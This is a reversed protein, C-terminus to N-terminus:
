CATALEDNFEIQMSAIRKPQAYDIPAILFEEMGISSKSVLNKMEEQLEDYQERRKRIHKALRCIASQMSEAKDHGCGVIYSWDHNDEFNSVTTVYIKQGEHELEAIGCYSDFETFQKKNM